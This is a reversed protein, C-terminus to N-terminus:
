AHGVHVGEIPLSLDVSTSCPVSAPEELSLVRVAMVAASHLFSFSRMPSNWFRLDRKCSSYLDANTCMAPMMTPRASFKRCLEALM